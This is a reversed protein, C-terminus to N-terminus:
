VAAQTVDGQRVILIKELQEIFGAAGELEGGSAGEAFFVVGEGECCSVIFGPVTVQKGM